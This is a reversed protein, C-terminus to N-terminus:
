SALYAAPMERCHGVLRVKDKLGHRAILAVLEDRYGDRGSPDGALIIVADKSRM